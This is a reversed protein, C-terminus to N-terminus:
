KLISDLDDRRHKKLKAETLEIKWSVDQVSEGMGVEAM